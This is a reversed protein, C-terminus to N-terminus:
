ITKNTILIHNLFFTQLLFKLTYSPYVGLVDFCIADSICNSVNFGINGLSMLLVFGWFTISKYVCYNERVTEKCSVECLEPEACGPVSEDVLCSANPTLQAEQTTHFYVATTMNVCEPCYWTCSGLRGGSSCNDTVNMKQIIM